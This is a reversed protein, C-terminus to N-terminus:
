AGGSDAGRSAGGRGGAGGSDAGSDAGRSAGGRGGAGGGTGGGAVRVQGKAPAEVRLNRTEAPSGGPPGEGEEWIKASIGAFGPSAGALFVTVLGPKPKEPSSGGASPFELFCLAAGHILLSALIAPLPRGM